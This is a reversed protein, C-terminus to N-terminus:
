GCGEGRYTFSEVRGARLAFTIDCGVVGYSPPSPFYGYRPGWPGWVPRYYGPEALAVTRRQEYQLFRRGEAEHTRVPVGMEAVLEGESRGVYTSLRQQLTPGQACAALLMLPLLLIPRLM